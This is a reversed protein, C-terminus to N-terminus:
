ATSAAHALQPIMGAAECAMITFMPQGIQRNLRYGDVLADFTGMLDDIGDYGFPDDRMAGDDRIAGFRILGGRRAKGITEGL